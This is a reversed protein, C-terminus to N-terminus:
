RSIEFTGSRDGRRVYLTVHSAAAALADGLSDLTSVKKGDVAQILDGPELGVRAAPGDRYVREVLVGSGEPYGYRKALSGTLERVKIGLPAPTRDLDGLRIQTTRLEGKRFFRIEVETGPRVQGVATRLAVSSTIRRDGIGLILDGEQIGGADAPGGEVVRKVAVGRPDELGLSAAPGPLLEADRPSVGLHGRTIKGESVVQDVVSRVMRIPIAFGIGQYGGSRSLIAANIGVVEGKLNVLPGGSNGPNIAADTQIFDEYDLINLNSRGKASVIGATVSQDLGFPNGIALVWQGVELADSDGLACAPLDEGEVKLVAVDSRPDTGLVKAQFERRDHLKVSLENAGEVVHHNTVVIGSGDVIVGSGSGVAKRPRVGWFLSSRRHVTRTATIHVVSPGVKRAVAVFAKSVDELQSLIEEIEKDEARAPGSGVGGLFCAASLFVAAFIGTSFLLARRM